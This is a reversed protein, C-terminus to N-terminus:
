ALQVGIGFSGVLDLCKGEMFGKLASAILPVSLPQPSIEPNRLVAYTIIAACLIM